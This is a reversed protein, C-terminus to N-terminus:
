VDELDLLGRVQPYLEPDTHTVAYCNSASGATYVVARDPGIVACMDGYFLCVEGPGPMPAEHLVRVCTSGSLLRILEGESRVGGRIYRGDAGVELVGFGEPDERPYQLVDLLNRPTFTFCLTCVVLLSAALAALTSRSRAAM